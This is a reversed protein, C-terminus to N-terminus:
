SRYLQPILHAKQENTTSRRRHLCGLTERIYTVSENGIDPFSLLTDDSMERIDGVTELGADTLANRIRSPFRVRETSTDDPLEPTPDLM